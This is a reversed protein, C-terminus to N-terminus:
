MEVSTTSCKIFIYLVVVAVSKAVTVAMPTAALDFVAKSKFTASGFLLHTSKMSNNM